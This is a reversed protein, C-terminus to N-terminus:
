YDIHLPLRISNEVVLPSFKKNLPYCCGFIHFKYYTNQWNFDNTGIEILLFWVLIFILVLNLIIELRPILVM